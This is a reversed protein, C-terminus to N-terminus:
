SAAQARQCLDPLLTVRFRQTPTEDLKHKECTTITLIVVLCHLKSECRAANSPGKFQPAAEKAGRLHGLICHSAGRNSYTSPAWMTPGSEGSTMCPMAMARLAPALFTCKSEVTPM